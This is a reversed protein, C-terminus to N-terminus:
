PRAHRDAAQIVLTAMAPRRSNRSALRKTAVCRKPIEIRTRDSQGTTVTALASNHAKIRDACSGLVKEVAYTLFWRNRDLLKM